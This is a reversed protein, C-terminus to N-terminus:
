ENLTNETTMGFGPKLHNSVWVPIDFQTMAKKQLCIIAYKSCFLREIDAIDTM